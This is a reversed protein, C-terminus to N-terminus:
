SPAIYAYFTKKMRVLDDLNYATLRLVECGSSDVLTLQIQWHFHYIKDGLEGWTKPLHTVENHEMIGNEFFELKFEGSLGGPFVIAEKTLQYPQRAFFAQSNLFKIEKAHEKYVFLEEYHHPHKETM